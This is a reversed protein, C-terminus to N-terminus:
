QKLVQRTPRTFYFMKLNKTTLSFILKGSLKEYFKIQQQEEMNGLTPLTKNVHFHRHGYIYIQKNHFWHKKQVYFLLDIQYSKRWLYTLRLPSLKLLIRGIWASCIDKYLKMIKLFFLSELVPTKRHFKHFKQSCHHSSKFVRSM